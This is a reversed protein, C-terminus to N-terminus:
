IAGENVKENSYMSGSTGYRADIKQMEAELKNSEMNQMMARQRERTESEKRRRDRLTSAVSLPVEQPVGPQFIWRRHKIRVEENALIAIPQGGQVITMPVGPSIVLEKPEAALAADFMQKDVVAQAKAEGIKRQLDNSANAILTDKATGTARLKDARAAVENLFDERNTDWKEAARDIDAMKARLKALEDSLTKQQEMMSAQGRVLTQLALAIELAEQNSAEPFKTVLAKIAPDEGEGSMNIKSSLVEQQRVLDDTKKRRPM